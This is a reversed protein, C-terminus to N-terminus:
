IQIEAGRSAHVSLPKRALVRDNIYFLLAGLLLGLGHLVAMM